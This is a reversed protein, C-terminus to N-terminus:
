CLTQLNNLGLKAGGDKVPIIHDVEWLHEGTSRYMNTYRLYRQIVKEPYTLLRNRLAQTDLGCNQCVAKDRNYVADRAYDLWCCIRFHEQCEESCYNQIWPLLIKDCVRCHYKGKRKIKPYLM